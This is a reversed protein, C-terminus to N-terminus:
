NILLQDLMVAFVIAIAVYIKYIYIYIYIYIYTRYYIEARHTTNVTKTQDEM